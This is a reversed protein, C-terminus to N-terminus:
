HEHGSRLISHGCPSSRRGNPAAAAIRRAIPRPRGTSSASRSRRCPPGNRATRRISALKCCRTSCPSRCVEVAVARSAPPPNRFRRPKSAPLSPILMLQRAEEDLVRTERRGTESEAWPARRSAAAAIASARPHRGLCQSSARQSSRARAKLRRRSRFRARGSCSWSDGESTAPRWARCHFWVSPAPVQRGVLEIRPDILQLVAAPGARVALRVMPESPPM